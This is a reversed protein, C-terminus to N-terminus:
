KEGILFRTPKFKCLAIGCLLALALAGAFNIGACVIPPLVDELLVLLIYIFQQHFLFIPMSYASLCKYVPNKQYNFHSAIKQLIVFAMLSGIVNAAFTIGLNLLKMIVSGSGSVFEGLIVLFISLALWVLGPIGMLLSSGHQRVMFGIIFFIVYRCATWIQFFNPLISSGALGAGYFALGLLVSLLKHGALFDSLWWVMMFVGFLMLLFWLQSPATGLLYSVPVTKLDIYQLLLGIPVVWVLAVFFYPILLRKAKNILFPVFRSYKGKEYKLYYFIYGSILTFGYIHFSNLWKAAMAFSAIRDEGSALFWKGNWFLISHYLVVLIMLVTKAFTCNQLEQDRDIIPRKM